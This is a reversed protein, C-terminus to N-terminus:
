PWTGNQFVEVYSRIVNFDIEFYNIDQKVYDFYRWSSVYYEWPIEAFALDDSDM